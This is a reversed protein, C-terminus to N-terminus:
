YDTTNQHKECFMSGDSIINNCLIDFCKTANKNQIERNIESLPIGALWCARKLIYNRIKKKM